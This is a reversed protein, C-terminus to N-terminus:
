RESKTDGDVPQLDYSKKGKAHTAIPMEQRQYQAFSLFGEGISLRDNTVFFLTNLVVSRM